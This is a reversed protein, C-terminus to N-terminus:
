TAADTKRTIRCAPVRHPSYLSIWLHTSRGAHRMVGTLLVVIDCDLLFGGM